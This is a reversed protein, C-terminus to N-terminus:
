TVSKEEKSVDDHSDPMSSEVMENADFSRCFKGGHDKTSSLM